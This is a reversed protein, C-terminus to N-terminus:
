ERWLEDRLAVHCRPHSRPQQERQQPQSFGLLHFGSHGPQISLLVFGVLHTGYESRQPEGL